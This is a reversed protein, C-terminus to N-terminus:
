EKRLKDLKETLSTDEIPKLPAIEQNDGNILYYSEKYYLIITQEQDNNFELIEYLGEDFTGFLYLKENKFQYHFDLKKKSNDIIVEINSNFLEETNLDEIETFADPENIEENNNDSEFDEVLNPAKIEAPKNEKLVSPEDTPQVPAEVPDSPTNEVDQEAPESPREAPKNELADLPAQVETEETIPPAPEENKTFFYAAAIVASIGAVTGIAKLSSGLISGPSSPSVPISNLMSKLQGKREERISNVIEKHFKFEQKLEPDSELRSEFANKEADNMRNALYNDILNLNNM